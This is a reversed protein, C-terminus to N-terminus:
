AMKQNFSFGYGNKTKDMVWLLSGKKEGGRMTECLELNRRATMDLEMYQGQRYVNLTNINALSTKQTLALFKLM